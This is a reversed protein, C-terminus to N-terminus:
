PKKKLPSCYVLSYARNTDDCSELSSRAHAKKGRRQKSNKRLVSARHTFKPSSVCPKKEKKKKDKTRKSNKPRARAPNEFIWTARCFKWLRSERDFRSSKFKEFQLKKPIFKWLTRSPTAVFACVHVCLVDCRFSM